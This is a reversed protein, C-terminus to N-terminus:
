TVLAPQIADERSEKQALQYYFGFGWSYLDGNEAVAMVHRGGAAIDRIKIKRKFFYMVKQPTFLNVEHGLGLRGYNGKGCTFVDGEESLFVSFGDGASM